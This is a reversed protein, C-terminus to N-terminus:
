ELGASLVLAAGAEEFYIRRECFRLYTDASCVMSNGKSQM